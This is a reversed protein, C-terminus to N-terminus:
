EEEGGIHNNAIEVLKKLEQETPPGTSDPNPLTSEYGWIVLAFIAVSLIGGVLIGFIDAVALFLYDRFENATTYKGDILMAILAIGAFLISMGALKVSEAFRNEGYGVMAISASACLSTSFLLMTPWFVIWYPNVDSRWVPTFSSWHMLSFIGISVFMAFFGSLRATSDLRGVPVHGGFIMGHLGYILLICPAIISLILHAGATSDSSPVTWPSALFILSSIVLIVLGLIKSKRSTSLWLGLGIMILPIWFLLTAKIMSDM